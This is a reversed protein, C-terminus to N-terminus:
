SIKEQVEKEVLEDFTVARVSDKGATQRFVM